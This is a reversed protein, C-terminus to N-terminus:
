ANRAHQGITRGRQEAAACLSILAPDVATHRAIWTHARIVCPATAGPQAGWLLVGEKSATVYRDGVKMDTVLGNGAVTVHKALMEGAARVSDHGVTRQLVRAVCHHSMSVGMRQADWTRYDGEMRLLIMAVVLDDTDEDADLVWWTAHQRSGNLRKISEHLLLDGYHKHIAAHAQKGSMKVLREFLRASSRDLTAVERKAIAHALTPDNGAIRIV